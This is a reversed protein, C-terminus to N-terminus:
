AIKHVSASLNDILARIDKGTVGDTRDSPPPKYVAPDNQSTLAAKAAKQAKEFAEMRMRNVMRQTAIETTSSSQTVPASLLTDGFGSVTESYRENHEAMKAHWNQLDQWGSTRPLWNMSGVAV